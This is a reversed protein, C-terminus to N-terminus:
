EDGLKDNEVLADETNDFNEHHNEINLKELNIYISKYKNENIVDLLCKEHAQQYECGGEGDYIAIKYYEEGDKFKKNCGDCRIYELKREKKLITKTKEKGFYKM